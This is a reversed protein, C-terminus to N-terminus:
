FLGIAKGIYWFVIVLLFGVLQMLEEKDKHRITRNAQNVLYLIVISTVFNQPVSKIFVLSVAVLAEFAGLLADRVTTSIYGDYTAPKLILLPFVTLTPQISFVFAIALVAWLFPLLLFPLILSFIWFIPLLSSLVLLATLLANQMNM